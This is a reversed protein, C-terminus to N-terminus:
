RGTLACRTDSKRAPVGGPQGAFDEAISPPPEEQTFARLREASSGVTNRASQVVHKTPVARWCYAEFYLLELRSQDPRALLRAAVNRTADRTRQGRTPEAHHM